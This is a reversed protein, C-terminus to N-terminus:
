REIHVVDKNKGGRDGLFCVTIVVQMPIRTNKGSRDACGGYWHGAVGGAKVGQLVDM